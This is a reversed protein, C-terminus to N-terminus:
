KKLIAGLACSFHHQCNLHERVRGLKYILSWWLYTHLFLIHTTHTHSEWYSLQYLIRRCHLLGQNSEQTPFGEQSPVPYAVWELIRPRRQHSLCYFIRRCYLLGSNSGQTPFIWQLFADCGVRTNKDPCDGHVSSGPLSCDMPDYLTLCLQAVLCLM